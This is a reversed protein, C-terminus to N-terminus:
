LTLLGVFVSVPIHVQLIVHEVTCWVQDEGIDDIALFGCIFVDDAMKDALNANLWKDIPGPLNLIKLCYQEHSM